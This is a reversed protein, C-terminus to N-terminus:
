YNILLFIITGVNPSLIISAVTELHNFFIPSWISVSSGNTSSSVSLTFISTGEGADPTKDSIFNSFPLVTFTPESNPIISGFPFVFTVLLLAGISNILSSFLESTAFKSFSLSSSVVSCVGFTNSSSFDTFLSSTKTKSLM